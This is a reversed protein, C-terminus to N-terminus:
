LIYQEFTRLIYRHSQDYPFSWMFVHRLYSNCTDAGVFDSSVCCLIHIATVVMTTPRSYLGAGPILVPTLMSILSRVLGTHGSAISAKYWSYWGTPVQPLVM